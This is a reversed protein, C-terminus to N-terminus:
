RPARQIQGHNVRGRNAPDAAVLVTERERRRLEVRQLRRQEVHQLHRLGVHEDVRAAACRMAALRRPPAGRPSSADPKSRRQRRGSPPRAASPAGVLRQARHAAHRGARPRSALEAAGAAEAAEGDAGDALSGTAVREVRRRAAPRAAASHSQRTHHISILPPLVPKVGPNFRRSDARVFRRRTEPSLAAPPPSSRCRASSACVCPRCRASSAHIRLDANRPSRSAIARRASSQLGAPGSGVARAAAAPRAM